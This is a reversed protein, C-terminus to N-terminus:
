REATDPSSPSGPGDETRRQSIPAIAAIFDYGCARCTTQGQDVPHGYPPCLRRPPRRAFWPVSMVLFGIVWIVGLLILVLVTGAAVGAACVDLGLGELGDCTGGISGTVVLALGIVAFSWALLLWTWRRWRRFNPFM